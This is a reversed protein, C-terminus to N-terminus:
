TIGVEVPARQPEGVGGELGRGNRRKGGGGGESIEGVGEGKSDGGGIPQRGGRGRRRGVATHSQVNM